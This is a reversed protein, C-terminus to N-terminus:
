ILSREVAAKAAAARSPVGLKRYISRLHQGVTRPSVYLREAVQTDTLGQAVLRLIEVERTSLLATGDRPSPPLEEEESLAYELAEEPTMARGESWAAEWAAEDLRSRIAAKYGEYDYHARDYPSRPYGIAERLAEEAGWLRAARAPPEGRLTAVGAMVMLGYVIGAKEKTERTWCLFEEEHLAAREPDGRELAAVGLISRCIAAGREDGLERHMAMSEGLLAEVQEHDGEEQAALGLCILLYASAPRDELEPRLAEAEARLARLRARDGYLAAAEGLLFLSYAIGPKDELERSLALGEEALAVAKEYDGRWLAIWGAQNLAKTRLSAPAVGSSRALGRELWGLGEGLGYAVWFGAQGLATALRLGLEAREEPQTARPDLAWSLAARFNDHERELRELWAGQEPGMMQPEAEEALALFFEAHRRRTADAEGSEELLEQGYQRIPELMRYRLTGESDAEAVVLSKDVLGFLLDLVDEEIGDGAGVAEAAEITWGGVFVSLRGFLKREQESLLDHSWELTARLTQQRPEATRGGGTLFKLPDRLRETIQEVSLVSVRAAALEVALPIGDLRRCVEAVAGANEHTLSFASLKSRAREVFLEVAEYRAAEEVSPPHSQEPVALPPVRWSTEGAIGMTERSTALIQLRPCSILMTKAFRACGEILHECNDLVLLVRKQGLSDALTDTLPVGPRESVKLAQAVAQPVLTPDSLPALEVWWVGDEFDEAVTAAVALALRTKGSGGPGTLTLM